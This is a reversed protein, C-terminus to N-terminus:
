LIKLNLIRKLELYFWLFSVVIFSLLLLCLNNLKMTNVSLSRKNNTCTCSAGRCEYSHCVRCFGVFLFPMCISSIYISILCLYYKGPFGLQLHLSLVTSRRMLTAQKTLFSIINEIDFHQFVDMIFTVLIHYDAYGCISVLVGNQATVIRLAKISLTM